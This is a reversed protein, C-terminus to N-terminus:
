LKFRKKGSTIDTAFGENRFLNNSNVPTSSTSNSNLSFKGDAKNKKLDQKIFGLKDSTNQATTANQSQNIYNQVMSANQYSVRDNIVQKGSVPHKIVPRTNKLFPDSRMDSRATEISAKFLNENLTEKGAQLNKSIKASVKAGQEAEKLTATVGSYGRKARTDELTKKGESITTAEKERQGSGYTNDRSRNMPDSVKPNILFRSSLFNYRSSNGNSKEKTFSPQITDANKLSQAYMDSGRPKFTSLKPSPLIENEKAQSRGLPDSKIEQITKNAEYLTKNLGPNAPPNGKNNGTLYNVGASEVNARGFQQKYAM